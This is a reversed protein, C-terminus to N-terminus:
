SVGTWLSLMMSLDVVDVRQDNNLDAVLTHGDPIEGGLTIGDATGQTKRWQDILVAADHGDVTGDPIFGGGSGNIDGRRFLNVVITTDGTVSSFTLDEAEGVNRTGFFSFGGQALPVSDAGDRSTSYIYWYQDSEKDMTPMVRFMVSSGNAVNQSWLTTGGIRSDAAISAVWSTVAFTAAITRNATVNTFAYTTVVGVSSGDVVVDEVHYGDDPTIAFSQSGGYPVSAESSPTISGHEGASATIAFLDIAFTATVAIDATVNTDTRPNATSADSWSVFHYGTTPTATVESGSAGHSVTQPTTGVVTGGEASVYSLSWTALATYLRGTDAGAMLRSGDANSACSQWATSTVGAPQADSWTAGSDSSTWVSGGDVAAVIHSGDADVAVTQWKCDVNGAPQPETWTAGGDASRYLRGSASAVSPYAALVITSGDEDMACAKWPRNADVALRVESWIAGADTSAYARGNWALAMIRSGGADCAVAQWLVNADGAPRTEVWSSGGNKSLWLRGTWAAAVLTSGDANSAVAKWSQGTASGGPAAPNWSTGGSTSVYLRGGNVAAILTSGDGDSACAQWNLGSAASGPATASWSAGYDTSLWLRGGNDGALLRQGTADSACALWKHDADGVPQREVWTTASSASLQPALFVIGVSSVLCAIILVCLIRRKM